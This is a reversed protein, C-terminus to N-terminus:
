PMLVRVPVNRNVDDELGLQRNSNWGWCWLTQDDRVGCTSTSNGATAWDGASGVQQPTHQDGVGPGLGLRGFENSGWCWLTGDQRRACTHRPGSYVATWSSLGGVQTPVSRNAFNGVGLAGDTNHGWCWLTGAGRLGCSKSGGVSVATWDTATGVRTVNLRNANGGDGIQGQTGGGWCYLEGARIGCTHSFGTSVDTWGSGSEVQVPAHRDTQNGTGLRWTLGYGWCWLTGDSRIGCTHSYGASVRAWTASGVQTTTWRDETDGVGLRGYENHGWCWLTGDSRIACAHHEGLSLREWTAAQGVRMPLGFPGQVGQGQGLGGYHNRGWCWLTGDARLGCTFTFGNDVRAWAAFSSEWTHSEVATAGTVLRGRLAFTHTGPSLGALDQTPGACPAFNSPLAAGAGLACELECGADLCGITFTALDEVIREARLSLTPMTTDVTWRHAVAAGRTGLSTIAAVALEYTDDALGNLALGSACPDDTFRAGAAAGTLTCVFSCDARDCGWTFTATTELTLAEPGSLDLVRPQAADITWTWSVAPGRAEATAAYVRFTYRGDALDSHREGSDCPRTASVVGATEETLECRFQCSFHSCWFTFTASTQNTPDAPGVLGLVLPSVTDVTWAWSAAPGTRGAGDRARVEFLHEGESLEAYTIGSECPEEGGGDLSCRFTCEDASCGFTFTAEREDILEAPGMLDVVLPPDGQQGADTSPSPTVPQNARPRDDDCASIAGLALALISFTSARM